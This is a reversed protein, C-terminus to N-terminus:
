SHKLKEWHHVYLPSSWLPWWLFNEMEFDKTKHWREYNLDVQGSSHIYWSCQTPIRSKWLWPHNRCQYLWDFDYIMHLFFLLLCIFVVQELSLNLDKAIKVCDKLAIKKDSDGNSVRELLEIRQETTMVRVSTWSRNLFLQLISGLKM